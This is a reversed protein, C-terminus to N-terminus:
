KLLIFQKTLIAEGNNVRIFYAGAQWNKIETYGFNNIGKILNQSTRYLTKGYNDSIVIEAKTQKESQISLQIQDRVPNPSVILQKIPETNLAISIVQSYRIRGTRNVIKLRYYIFKASIGSIVDTSAYSETENETRKGIITQRASFVVGEISREVIFYDVEQKCLVDWELYVTPLQAKVKFTITECHLIYYVCRWDRETICGNLSSVATQQVTTISGPPSDGSTTGGNGMYASTGKASSNDNDFRDDLGDDDTDIGTLTVNDDQQNNFNLDNGEIIDSLGDSDTDSDLYDPITDGDKDPPNIGNGGFGVFNDYSNDLGDSDSDLNAPLLYGNTTMGEVNDPIGDNDSDIDYVNIRGSGDTNPLNLSVLAAVIVSWGKSNFAGDIKGDYNADTFGAEIVDLIGDM